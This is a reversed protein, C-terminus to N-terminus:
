KNRKRIVLVIVTAVAVAVVGGLCILLITATPKKEAEHPTDVVSNEESDGPEAPTDPQDAPDGAPDDTPDDKPDDTPTDAGIKSGYVEIEACSAHGALSNSKGLVRIGECDVAESLTFIYVENVPMQETQSDGPYEPTIKSEVDTWEGDILVQVYPTAGFWGGDWWHGGEYFIVHSVSYGQDFQVGFWQIKERSGLMDNFTAGFTDYQNSSTGFSKVGDV